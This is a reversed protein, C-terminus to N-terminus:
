NGAKSQEWLFLSAAVAANLSESAPSIPVYVSADCLASVDTPIGQGENGIVIVDDTRLGIESLPIAGARLEAALVRRGVDQASKIFTAFDSVTYFGVSFVGGMAARVTKPNTVEVCDSSLFIKSFGFAVASRIIAGLNGPDRVGALALVKQGELEDVDKKEIKIYFKSFDISKLVTIIGQPSKESTIKEFAPDSFVVTSDTDTFSRGLLDTVLPLYTASSSESLYIRDIKSRNEPKASERFLKEGEASFLGTEERGKKTLLSAALVTEPNNRSAIRKLKRDGKSM